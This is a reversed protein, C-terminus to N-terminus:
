QFTQNLVDALRYGGAAIQQHIMPMAADIYSPSISVHLAATTARGADCAAKDALGADRSATPIAPTLDGYTVAAAIKHSDWAWAPLDVPATGWINWKASFEKDIVAALQIQTLQKQKLENAILAYDWIGHLNAPKDLFPASISTCNGGQDRNDTAHLPQSLDGLFHIVYRLAQAREAAPRVKDRLIGLEYIAGNLICGPRDKNDVSPGIPACWTMADGESAALPIDVYHWEGTKEMRKTDDAWTASDAMPDAPRDKCFRELAPDIPSERLLQDVAASAAPTLHARAILAIMQHGECGWGFASGALLPLATLLTFIKRM